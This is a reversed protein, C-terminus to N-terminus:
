PPSTLRSLREDSQHLRDTEIEGRELARVACHIAAYSKEHDFALLLLDVGANLAKVVAQCLGRNYAAAMTLDDTIVIGEHRWSDRIIGQVVPRSFSVPDVPDIEPLLVHALMIWTQSQGAVRRFPLWDQHGLTEVPTHLTASFHHTDESVGGLGPFHKLTATVGAKELGHAYALALRATTNPDASIARQNIRSHFDLPNEPRDSRLDVVPSFNVTVGMTALESGQQRGYEMAKVEADLQSALTSLPHRLPLPPSLRSVRGGEQDTAIILPPLGLTKRLDQLSAIEAQLAAAPKGQANRSTVFIGGIGKKVLPILEELEQYGVIFHRGIAPISPSDDHLVWHKHFRHTAEGGLTLTMAGTFAVTLALRSKSKEQRRAISLGLASLGLLLPSEFARYLTLHPDKLHYAVFLLAVALLALAITTITSIWPRQNM